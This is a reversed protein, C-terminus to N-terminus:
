TDAVTLQFLFRSSIRKFCTMHVNNDSVQTRSRSRVSVSLLRGNVEEVCLCVMDGDGVCVHMYPWVRTLVCAFVYVCARMYAPVCASSVCTRVCARVCVRVCARLCACICACMFVRVCVICERVCAHVCLCMCMYERLSVSLSVSVSM